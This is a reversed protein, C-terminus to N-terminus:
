PPVLSIMFSMTPREITRQANVGAREGTHSSSVSLPAEVDMLLRRAEAAPDIVGRAESAREYRPALLHEAGHDHRVGHNPRRAAQVASDHHGEEILSEAQEALVEPGFCHRSAQGDVEPRGHMHSGCELQAAPDFKALAALPAHAAFRVFTVAKKGLGAPEPDLDARWVAPPRRLTPQCLAPHEM